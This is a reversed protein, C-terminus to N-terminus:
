QTTKINKGNYVTMNRLAGCGFQCVDANDIHTNIAKVVAEIGGAAGAKVENEDTWESENHTKNTNNKGNVTMYFLAGCGQECVDANNIHKNIAKVVAEIGGAAGAKVKNEDTWKM